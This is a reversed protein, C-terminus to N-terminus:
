RGLLAFATLALWALMGAYILREALGFVQQLRPSVAALITLASAASMAWGLSTADGGQRGLGETAGFAAGVLFGGASAAAFAAFALADHARGTATRPTAPADMPVWGIVARTAALVVLAIVAPLVSEVGAAPLAVALAAASAATALTQARYLVRYRSLGYASVPDRMPSLGTPLAHLAVISGLAVAVGVLAVVALATIM